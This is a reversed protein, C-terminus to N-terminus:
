VEVAMKNIRYKSVNLKRALEAKSKVVYTTSEYVYTKRPGDYEVLEIGVAAYAEEWNYDAKRQYPILAINEAKTTRHAKCAERIMAEVQDLTAGERVFNVIKRAMTQRSHYHEVVMKGIRGDHEAIAAKSCYGSMIAPLDFLVNRLANINIIDFESDLTMVWRAVRNYKNM